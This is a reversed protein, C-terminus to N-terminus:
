SSGCADVEFRGHGGRGRALQCARALRALQPRGPGGFVARLDEVREAADHDLVERRRLVRLLHRMLSGSLVRREAESRVGGDPGATNNPRRRTSAPPPVTSANPPLTTKVAPATHPPQLVGKPCGTMGRRFRQPM